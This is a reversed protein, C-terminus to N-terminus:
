KIVLYTYIRVNYVQVRYQLTGYCVVVTFFLLRQSILISLNTLACHNRSDERQQEM